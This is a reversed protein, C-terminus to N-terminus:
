SDRKKMWRILDFSLWCTAIGAVTLVTALATNGDDDIFGDVGGGILAFGLLVISLPWHDVWQFPSTPQDAGFSRSLAERELSEVIDQAAVADDDIERFHLVRRAAVLAEQRYDNSDVTIIRVLERTSLAKFRKILEDRNPEATM